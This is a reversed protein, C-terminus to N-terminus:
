CYKNEYDHTRAAVNSAATLRAVGPPSYRYGVCVRKQNVVFVTATAWADLGSWSRPYARPLPRLEKAARRQAPVQGGTLRQRVQRMLSL